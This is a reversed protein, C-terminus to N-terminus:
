NWVGRKPNTFTVKGNTFEIDAWMFSCQTNNFAFVQLPHLSLSVIFWNETDTDPYQEYFADRVM